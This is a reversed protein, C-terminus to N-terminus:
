PRRRPSRPWSGDNSATAVALNEHLRDSLAKAVDELSGFDQDGFRVSDFPLQHTTIGGRDAHEPLDGAFVRRCRLKMVADLVRQKRRQTYYDDSNEAESRLWQRPEDCLLVVPSFPPELARTVVELKGDLDLEPDRLQDCEGNALGHARLWRWDPRHDGAGYRRRLPPSLHIPRLGKELLRERLAHLLTTKGVGIIGTIHLAESANLGGIRQALSDAREQQTRSFRM